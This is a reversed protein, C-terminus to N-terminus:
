RNGRKLGVIRSGVTGRLSEGGDKYRDVGTVFITGLGNEGRSRCFGGMELGCLFRGWFSPLRVVFNRSAFSVAARRAGVRSEKGGLAPWLRFGSVAKM